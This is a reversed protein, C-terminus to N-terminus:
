SFPSAQAMWGPRSQAVWAQSVGSLASPMTSESRTQVTLAPRLSKSGASERPLLAVRADPKARMLISSVAM